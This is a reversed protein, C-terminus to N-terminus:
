ETEKENLNSPIRFHFYHLTAKIQPTRELLTPALAKIPTAPAPGAWWISADTGSWHSGSGECSSTDYKPFLCM